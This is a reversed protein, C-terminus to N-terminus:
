AAALVAKKNAQIIIIAQPLVLWFGSAPMLLCGILASVLLQYGLSAPVPQQQQRISDQMMRGLMMLLFGSFLFWFIANRDMDEPGAGIANVFGAAAIGKLIPWGALLGVVNHIIGTAILLHGSKKWLKM